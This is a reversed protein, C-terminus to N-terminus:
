SVGMKQFATVALTRGGGAQPLAPTPTIGPRSAALCSLDEKKFFLLLFSKSREAEAIGSPALELDCVNKKLFSCGEVGFPASLRGM